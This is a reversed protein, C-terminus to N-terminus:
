QNKKALRELPRTVTFDFVEKPAVRKRFEECSMAPNPPPYKKVYSSTQVLREAAYHLYM